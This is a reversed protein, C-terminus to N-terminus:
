NKEDEKQKKNDKDRIESYVKRMSEKMSGSGLEIKYSSHVIRDLIADAITPDRVTEYWKDPPLQSSIISSRSGHRAEIIELILLSQKSLLKELGWDDLILLDPKTLKKLDKELEGLERSVELERLLPSMRKYLVSYGRMCAKHGLACSLWTKGAGTAGTILIGLHDHIWRCSSLSMMLSRDIGRDSRYDIDEMCASKHKFGAQKLRRNMLRNDRTVVERDLMMGLRDDFTFKGIDPTEQQEAYADAMSYLRLSKLKEHVPHSLM